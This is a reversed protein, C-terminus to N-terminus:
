GRAGLLCDPTPFRSDPSSSRMVFKGQRSKPHRPDAIDRDDDQPRNPQIASRVRLKPDDKSLRTPPSRPQAHSTKPRIAAVHTLYLLLKTAPMM